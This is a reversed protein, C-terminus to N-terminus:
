VSNTYMGAAVMLSRMVQSPPPTTEDMQKEQRVTKARGQRADDALQRM